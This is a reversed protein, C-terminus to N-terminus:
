MERRPLMNPHCTAATEATGMVHVTNELDEFTVEKLDLVKKCGSQELALRTSAGEITGLVLLVHKLAAEKTMASTASRAVPTRSM